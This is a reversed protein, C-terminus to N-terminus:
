GGKELSFFLWGPEWLFAVFFRRGNRVFAKHILGEKYDNKSHVFIMIGSLRRMDM